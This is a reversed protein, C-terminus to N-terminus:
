GTEINTAIGNQGIIRLAQTLSAWSPPGSVAVVSDESKLWAAVLENMLPAMRQLHPYHLGLAGGLTMLEANGLNTLHRTVAFHDNITLGPASPSAGSEHAM